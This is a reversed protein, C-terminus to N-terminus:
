EIDLENHSNNGTSYLSEEDWEDFERSEVDGADVGGTKDVGVDPSASLILETHIKVVQSDPIMYYKKMITDKRM